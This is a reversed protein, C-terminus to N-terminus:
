ISEFLVGPIIEGSTLVEGTTLLADVFRCFLQSAVRLTLPSLDFHGSTLLKMISCSITTTVSVLSSETTETLERVIFPNVELLSSLFLLPPPTTDYILVLRLGAANHVRWSRATVNPSSHTIEFIENWPM